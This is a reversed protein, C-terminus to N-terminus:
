KVLAMTMLDDILKVFGAPDQPAAGELILSQDYLVKVIDRTKEDNAKAMEILKQIVPHNANLELIRKQPPPTQGAARM